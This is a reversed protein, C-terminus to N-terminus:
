RWVQEAIVYQVTKVTVWITTFLLILIIVIHVVHDFIRDKWSFYKREEGTDRQKGQM